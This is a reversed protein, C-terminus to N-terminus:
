GEIFIVEFQLNSSSEPQSFTTNVIIPITGIFNSSNEATIGLLTLNTNLTDVPSPPFFGAVDGGLIQVQTLYIHAVTSFIRM